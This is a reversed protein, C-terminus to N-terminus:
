PWASPRASSTSTAATHMLVGQPDALIVMSHSHRVQEFLHEMVPESHSILEHSLARSRQLEPGVLNDQCHLRGTPSLGATLSRQWSRALLADVGPAPALGQETLRQRALRLQQAPVLPHSRM